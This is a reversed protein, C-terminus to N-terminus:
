PLFDAAATLPRQRDLSVLPLTLPEPRVDRETTMLAFRTM